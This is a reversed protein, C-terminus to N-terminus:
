VTQAARAAPAARATLDLVADDLRAQEVRLGAAIVGHRALVSTVATLLEGRGAVEITSGHRV